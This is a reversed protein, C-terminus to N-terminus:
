PARRGLRRLAAGIIPLHHWGRRIVVGRVVRARDRLMVALGTRSRDDIANAEKSTWRACRLCLAVEPHDGLHVMKESVEIVGCCWCESRGAVNDETAVANM